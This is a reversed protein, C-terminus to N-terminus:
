SSTWQRYSDITTKAAFDCDPLPFVEASLYGVYGIGRLAAMVPRLDLHGLGIARRNSDAFHVHGVLDDAKRLSQGLDPEEINMHFLDCLLKVNAINMRRLLDSAEVVSTLVNTEYRNLPELLLLSGAAQATRAIQDLGEQLWAFADCRPTQPEIRGQMSGIITAAGFEGAKRAIGSIFAIAKDRVMPDPDTLRLKHVVWGAGTGLAALSLGNGTLTTRLSAVDVSEPERPFVELADFGLSAAKSAAMALDDWYVFPGGKVEPVLSVTIASRM